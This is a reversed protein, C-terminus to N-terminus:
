ITMILVAHNPDIRELDDHLATRAPAVDRSLFADSVRKSRSIDSTIHGRQADM